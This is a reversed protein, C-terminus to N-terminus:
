FGWTRAGIVGTHLWTLGQSNAVRLCPLAGAGAAAALVSSHKVQLKGKKGWNEAVCRCDWFGLARQGQSDENAELVPQDCQCAGFNADWVAKEGGRPIGPM